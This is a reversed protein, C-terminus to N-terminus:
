MCIKNFKNGIGDMLETVGECVFIQDAQCFQTMALVSSNGCDQKFGDINPKAFKYRSAVMVETECLLRM